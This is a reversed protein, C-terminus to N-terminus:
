KQMGFANFIVHLLAFIVIAVLIFLSVVMAKRIFKNRRELDIMKSIKEIKNAVKKLALDNDKIIYDFAGYKISNVAVEVSENATLFLFETNKSRKKVAQLVAIGNSDELFYDQIVIDPTEGNKVENLCAKGTYFPKVKKYGKKALFECVVKNYLKNDEVVYILLNKNVGM